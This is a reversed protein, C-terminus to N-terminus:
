WIDTRFPGRTTLADPGTGPLTGAGEDRNTEVDEDPGSGFM